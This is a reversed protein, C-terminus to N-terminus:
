HNRQLFPLTVCGLYTGSTNIKQARKPLSRVKRAEKAHLSPSQLMDDRRQGFPGYQIISANSSLSSFSTDTTSGMSLEPTSEMSTIGTSSEMSPTRQKGKKTQAKVTIQKRATARNVATSVPRPLRPKLTKKHAAALEYVWDGVKEKVGYKIWSIMGSWSEEFEKRDKATIPRELNDCLLDDLSHFLISPAPASRPHLGTDHMKAQMLAAMRDRDGRAFKKYIATWGSRRRANIFWLTLQEVSFLKDHPTSARLLTENTDITLNDKEESTPYPSDLNALFWQRMVSSPLSESLDTQNTGECRKANLKTFTKDQRLEDCISEFTGDLSIRTEAVIKIRQIVQHIQRVTDQDSFDDMNTASTQCNLSHLSRVVNSHDREDM